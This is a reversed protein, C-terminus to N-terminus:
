FNDKKKKKKKVRRYKPFKIDLSNSFHKLPFPENTVCRFLDIYIIIFRYLYIEIWLIYM